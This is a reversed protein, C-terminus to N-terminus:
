PSRFDEGSAQHQARVQVQELELMLAGPGVTIQNDATINQSSGGLLASPVLPSAGGFALSCIGFHTRIFDPSLGHTM